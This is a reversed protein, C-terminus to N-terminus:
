QITLALNIQFNRPLNPRYGQPLNAVVAMNNTLNQLLLGLRLRERLRFNASFDLLLFAPLANIQGLGVADSPLSLEDQGPMVRTLGTYRGTLTLDMRSHELGLSTTLLHPTLFPIRDGPMIQGFGFDGGASRFAERFRADTVTYALILPMRWSTESQEEPLLNASLSCELGQIRAKGANYQDGTGAGGGSLMDSGLINAYDNRFVIFRGQWRSRELGIGLEYNTSREARAQELRGPVPMGPPSFGRHIGGLLHGGGPLTYHFGLGPLIVSLSNRAKRLATGLRNVDGTGYDDFDLVVAEHRLGPSVKLGRYILDYSVWSGLGSGSRIQNERNGRLGESTLLLKGAAMVYSSQTAYRDSADAHLRTGMQLRHSWNGREWFYQVQTQVGQSLYNRAASQYLVPGDAQGTMMRYAAAQGVPDRIIQDLSRGGASSARAWDRFTTLRYITSLISLGRVPTIAHTMSLHDHRLALRDLQTLAYRRRPNTQYDSFTLGLYTEHAEEESSLWKLTLSQQVSADERSHWRLKGLFDRREFGTPGGNDLEKFGRSALRNGEFVFDVHTRSDGIWIRQRDLFNGASVEARGQFFAPIPTSLLNLAGGITNPGFRIQSSGKLIEIGHMRTFTPFYYAAPDAYPAPATLVGDEMLTIRASRNVPTGRLGINPRLGFGEEDRVNVGPITRLVHQVNPENLRELVRRNLYQGSGPLVGAKDGVILMAEM